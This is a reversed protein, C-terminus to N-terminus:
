IALFKCNGMFVSKELNYKPQLCNGVAYTRFFKWGFNYQKTLYCCAISYFDLLIGFFCSKSNKWDYKKRWFITFNVWYKGFSNNNCM